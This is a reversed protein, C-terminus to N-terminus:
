SYENAENPLVSAGQYGHNRRGKLISPIAAEAVQQKGRLALLLAQNVLAWASRPEKQFAQPVLSEAEKVMRKELYYRFDPGRNFFRQSAELAEDPRASIFYL